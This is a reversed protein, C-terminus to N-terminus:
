VCCDCCVSMDGAPNSSVTKVNSRGCAYPKSRATAPFPTIVQVNCYSAHVHLLLARTNLHEYRRLPHYHSM